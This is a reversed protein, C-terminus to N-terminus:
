CISKIITEVWWVDNKQIVLVKFGMSEGEIEVGKSDDIHLDIDFAPPYKSCNIDRNKLEKRNSQANIIFDPHIGYSFLLFRIWYVSRYSTTYIGVQHGSRQLKNFLGETGDRILEVNFARQLFNRKVSPFSKIDSPILTDDLDFSIRM